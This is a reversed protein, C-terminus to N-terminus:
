GIALMHRGSSSSDQKLATTSYQRWSLCAGGSFTYTLLTSIIHQAHATHQAQLSNKVSQDSMGM